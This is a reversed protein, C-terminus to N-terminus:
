HTDGPDARVSFMLTPKPSSVSKSLQLKYDFAFGKTSHRFDYFTM